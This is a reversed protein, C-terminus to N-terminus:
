KIITVIQVIKINIMIRVAIDREREDTDVDSSGSALSNMRDGRVNNLEKEYNLSEAPSILEAGVGPERPGNVMM